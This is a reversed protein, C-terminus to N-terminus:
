FFRLGMVLFRRLMKLTGGLVMDLRSFVQHSILVLSRRMVRMGGFAMVLVRLLVGGFRGLQVDGFM